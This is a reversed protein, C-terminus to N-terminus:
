IWKRERTDVNDIAIACRELPRKVMCRKDLIRGEISAVRRCGYRPLEENRRIVVALIVLLGSRTSEKRSHEPVM